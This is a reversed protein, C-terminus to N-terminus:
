AYEKYKSKVEIIATEKIEYKNKDSIIVSEKEHKLCNLIDRAKELKKEKRNVRNYNQIENKLIYDIKENFDRMPQRLDEKFSIKLLDYETFSKFNNKVLHKAFVEQEYSSLTKVFESLEKNDINNKKFDNEIKNFITYRKSFKMMVWHCFYTTYPKSESAMCLLLIITAALSSFFTCFVIGFIPMQSLLLVSSVTTAFLIGVICFCFLHKLCFEDSFDYFKLNKKINYSAIKYSIKEVTFFNKVRTFLSM